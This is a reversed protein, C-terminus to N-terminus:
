SRNSRDAPLCLQAASHGECKRMHQEWVKLYFKQTRAVLKDVNFNELVDRQGALATRKAFARDKLM